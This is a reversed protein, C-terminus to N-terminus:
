ECGKKEKRKRWEPKLHGFDRPETVWTSNSCVGCEAVHWSAIGCPRRGYKEGCERCIWSPYDIM